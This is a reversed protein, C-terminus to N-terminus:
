SSQGGASQGGVSNAIEYEFVRGARDAVLLGLPPGATFAATIKCDFFLTGVCQGSRTELLRVTNDEGTVALLDGDPSFAVRQVVGGPGAFEAVPRPGQIDWLTVTGNWVGTAFLTGTRPLDIAAVTTPMGIVAGDSSLMLGEGGVPPSQTVRGDTTVTFTWPPRTYTILGDFSISLSWSPPPAVTFGITDDAAFQMYAVPGAYPRPESYARSTELEWVLVRTLENGTAFLRGDVSVAVATIAAPEAALGVVREGTAARWVAATGDEAGSALLQGDPSFALSLVRAQHADFGIAPEPADPPRTTVRGDATGVAVSDGAPSFALSTVASSSATAVALARAAPIDWVTMVGDAGGSALRQSDASFLLRTVPSGNGGYQAHCEGTDASWVRVSGDASGTAVMQEDPSLAVSDAPSPLPALELPPEPGGPHGVWVAENDAHVILEGDPFCAFRSLFQIDV